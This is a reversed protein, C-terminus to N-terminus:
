STGDKLSRRQMRHDTSQQNERRLVCVFYLCFGPLQSAIWEKLCLPRTGSPKISILVEFIWDFGAFIQYRGHFLGGFKATANSSNYRVWRKPIVDHLTWAFGILDTCQRYINNYSVCKQFIPQIKIPKLSPKNNTNAPASVHFSCIQYVSFGDDKFLVRLNINAM